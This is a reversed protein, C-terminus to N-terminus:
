SYGFERLAPELIDLYPELHRTYNKWRGIARAYIPQAVDAYTPTRVGKSFSREHFRLVREDWALGLFGLIRRMEGAPDAVLQEYRTELKAGPLGERWHQWLRFSHACFECTSALDLAHASIRNLPIITFFYSICIDRPDRVPFIVKTEPFLRLPLPLDPTLSPDKEILVRGNISQGLHAETFRLYSERGAALQEAGFGNLERVADAARRAQRILPDLFERQWVGTEDTSVVEPHAALLQELLTTGSRPHGCLIALRMPTDLPKGEAFWAALDSARLKEAVELQRIRLARAEELFPTAFRRLQEKALILEQMAADFEGLRDLVAALEQRLRWDEPGTTRRLQQTLLERASALDGRRRHVHALLRHAKVHEADLALADHAHREADDLRDCRDCIEGLMTKIAADSPARQSAEELWAAAPDFRGLSFLRQAAQVCLLPSKPNSETSQAYMRLAEDFEYNAWLYEGLTVKLTVDEPSLRVADRLLKIADAVDGSQWARLAAGRYDEAQM